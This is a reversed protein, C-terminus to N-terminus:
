PTATATATNTPSATAAGGTSTATPTATATASSVVIAVFVDAGFITGSTTSMRWHGTANGTKTPATMAISIELQAGPAVATNLVFPTGGMSEGSVYVFKFGADWTCTGSNQVLWTKVFAQGPTMVTGDPITVDKVLILGYCSVTPVIGTATSLATGSTATPTITPTETPTSTPLSLATQTLGAAFTGVAQTQIAHLTQTPIPAPTGAGCASLALSGLIILIILKSSNKM